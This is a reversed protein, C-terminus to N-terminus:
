QRLRRMTARVERHRHSGHFVSRIEALGREALADGGMIAKALADIEDRQLMMAGGYLTLLLSIAGEASGTLEITEDVLRQMNQSM